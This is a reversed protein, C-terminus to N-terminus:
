WWRWRCEKGVRGEERDATARVKLRDLVNTEAGGPGDPIALYGPVGRHFGLSVRAGRVRDASADYDVYRTASRPAIDPFAVLYVLDSSCVDSSWDRYCRTH